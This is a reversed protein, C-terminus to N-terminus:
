QFSLNIPQKVLQSPHGLAKPTLESVEIRVRIQAVKAGAMDAAQQLTLFESM